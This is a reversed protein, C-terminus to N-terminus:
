SWQARKTGEGVRGIEISGPYSSLVAEVHAPDVVLAMGIGLNFTSRMESLPIEGDHMLDTFVKPWEWTSADIHASLGDPIVRALNHVIGGGTSHSAAHLLSNSTLTLVTPAYIVSPEILQEYRFLEESSAVGGRIHDLLETYVARVLSFGNSRLNPSPLGIVRDGVRVRNVGIAAQPDMLGVAFGALDIQDPAMTGPHEAIEGGILATNTSHLATAMSTVLTAILSPENKGVALYDLFFLPRAGTCVLDDICMAVLDQGIGEWRGAARAVETKTGVGDTTAVLIGSGEDGLRYLGGFGGIDSLVQTNYTSRVASSIARVAEEANVLDVGAQQYDM